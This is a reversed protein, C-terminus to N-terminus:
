CASAPFDIYCGGLMELSRTDWKIWRERHHAAHKETTMEQRSVAVPPAMESARNRYNKIGM